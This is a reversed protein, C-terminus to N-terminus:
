ISCVEGVERYGEKELQLTSHLIKFEDKLMTKLRNLLGNLDRMAEDTVVVHASLVHFYSTISWVHLDHVDVVGEVGKFRELLKKLNVHKPAAELLIDVVSKIMRSAGYIIAAGIAIGLISDIVFLGTFYIAVAGVIVGMSSLADSLAHLFAAKVNLSLMRRSMVTMSALNAALGVAAVALMQLSHVEVTSFLRRLSEYFIFSAVAALIAGNVFAALIEVRYYGYTKNWTAPKISVSGAVYCLILATLDAFMHWADSLLALSNSLIGGAVELGVISATIAIAVKLNRQEALKAGRLRSSM